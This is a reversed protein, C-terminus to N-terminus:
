FDPGNLDKSDSMTLFLFAHSQSQIIHTLSESQFYEHTLTTHHPQSPHM